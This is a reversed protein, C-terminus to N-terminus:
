RVGMVAIAGGSDVNGTQIAGKNFDSSSTGNPFTRTVGVAATPRINEAAVNEFSPDATDPTSDDDLALEGVINRNSGTNQSYNNGGLYYITAGAPIDVGNVNAHTISDVMVRSINGFPNAEIGDAGNDVSSVQGLFYQGANLFWGNLTNGIATSQFWYYEDGNARYGSGGNNTAETQYFTARPGTFFYGHSTNGTANTRILQVPQSHTKEWGSEGNGESVCEVWVIGGLGDNQWGDLNANIIRLNKIVFFNENIFFGEGTGTNFDLTVLAETTADSFGRVIIPDAATGSSNDIDIGKDADRSTWSTSASGYENTADELIRIDLGPCQCDFVGQIGFPASINNYEAGAVTAGCPVAGLGVNADETASVYAIDGSNCTLDQAQCVCAFLLLLALLLRKM